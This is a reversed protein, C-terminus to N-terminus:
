VELKPRGIEENAFPEFFNMVFHIIAITQLPTTMSHLIQFPLHDELIYTEGMSIVEDLQFSPDSQSAGATMCLEDLSGVERNMFGVTDDAMEIPSAWSSLLFADGTSHSPTGRAMNFGFPINLHLPPVEIMAFINGSTHGALSAMHIDNHSVAVDRFTFAELTVFPRLNEACLMGWLDEMLLMHRVSLDFTRITMARNSMFDPRDEGHSVRRCDTISTVTSLHM